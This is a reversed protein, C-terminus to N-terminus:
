IHLHLKHNICLGIISLFVPCLPYTQIILKTAQPQVQVQGSGARRSPQPERPLSLVSSSYPTLDSLTSRSFFLKLTPGHFSLDEESTTATTAVPLAEPLHWVRQVSHPGWLGVTLLLYGSQRVSCHVFSPTVQEHLTHSFERGSDWKPYLSLLAPRRKSPSCVSKTVKLALKLVIVCGLIQSHCTGPVNLTYQNIQIM